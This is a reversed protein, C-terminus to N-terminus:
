KLVALKEIGYYNFCNVAEATILEGPILIPVAPPCSVCADALVRDRAQACSVYERPSLLADRISLIRQPEPRPPAKVTIASRPDIQALVHEVRDFDDPSTAPSPMLVIREPDSYECEIGHERLIDATEDGTRGIPATLVTIKMPETGEFEYGRVLLRERMQRTREITKCISERYAASSIVANTRDLSQLIQYSPSTSAFLSFADEAQEVIAAPVHKGIHLYAGGTLVPLTKHASDCCMDAGADMPHMDPGAFKLYAGHANDVLLQVNHKRCVAAIVAIDCMHGAYDPSTVYVTTYDGDKLRTDLAEPDVTCSLLGEDPAGMIWDVDIDLLACAYMFVKHANRGALIRPKRGHDRACLCSIHLMARICLSSGECSYITRASGFISAAINESERIIGKSHYLVDAGSVETIDMPHDAGKHGPMHMRVMGSGSYARVFDYIPTKM